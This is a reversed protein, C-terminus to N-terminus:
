CYVPTNTIKVCNHFKDTIDQGTLAKFEEFNYDLVTDSLQITKHGFVATERDINKFYPMLQIREQALIERYQIEVTVSVNDRTTLGQILLDCFLEKNEPISLYDDVTFSNYQESVIGQLAEVLSYFILERTKERTYDEPFHGAEFLLTPVGLAQFTDGVCNLNFADSYRGVGGPIATQLNQNLLAILQMAKVRAPTLRRETDASPSLFSVTASVANDGASFITRQDHLNFCWHPQVREFVERLIKSEPQTLAQADRNLDIQHHNLRTYAVAGDPNLVPIVTLTCHELVTQSVKNNKDALFLFLDALAKTATTENGHMQSWMLIQIPGKGLTFVDVRKGLVSFGVTKYASAFTNGVSSLWKDYTLYRGFLLKNKYNKYKM